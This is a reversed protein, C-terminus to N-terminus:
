GKLPKEWTTLHRKRTSDPFRPQGGKLSIPTYYNPTSGRLYVRNDFVFSNSICEAILGMM